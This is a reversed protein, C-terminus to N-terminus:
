EVRRLTAEMFIPLTNDNNTNQVVFLDGGISVQDGPDIIAELPLRLEFTTAVGALDQAEKLLPNGQEVLWGLYTGGVTYDESTGYINEAKARRMVTVETKLDEVIVDHAVQQLYALTESNISM